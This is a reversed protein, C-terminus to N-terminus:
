RALPGRFPRRWCTLGHREPPWLYYPTSPLELHRTLHPRQLLEQAQALNTGALKMTPLSGTLDGLERAATVAAAVLLAGCTKTSEISSM